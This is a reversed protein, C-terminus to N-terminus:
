AKKLDDSSMVKIDSIVSKGSADTDFLMKPHHKRPLWDNLIARCCFGAGYDFDQDADFNVWPAEPVLKDANIRPQHSLLDNM